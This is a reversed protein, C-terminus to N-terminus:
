DARNKLILLYEPHNQIIKKLKERCSHVENAAVQDSKYGLLERIERMSHSLQFLGILKQCREGVQAILQHLIVRREESILIKEPNEAISPLDAKELEVNPRKKRLFAVWQWRAIGHFWTELSSEGRFHGARVQREFVIFSEEFVDKADQENGSNQRVHGIVWKLLRPNEFFHALALQREQETGLFAALLEVDNQFFPQQM